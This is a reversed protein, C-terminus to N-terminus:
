SFMASVLADYRSAKSNNTMARQSQWHRQAYQMIEEHTMRPEEMRHPEREMRVPKERKKPAPKPEPEPAAPIERVEAIPEIRIKPKNPSGKPRGRGRKVPEEPVPEPAMETAPTEVVEVPVEPEGAEESM